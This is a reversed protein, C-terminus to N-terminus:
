FNKGYIIILFTVCWLFLTIQLFRDKWLVNIPSGSNKDIVTIQIYRMIGLFVFFSTIYLKDSGIREIVESSISYLIYSILTISFSISKAIDLFQISYGNKVLTEDSGSQAFDHRRKSFAISITLLFVIIIMWHSVFVEAIFGGALVRLVFGLSICSVDVISIKKLFLSYCINLCFYILVFFFSKGILFYSVFFLVSLIVFLTWAFKLSFYGKALPRLQNEQHKKDTELDFIDNVVYIASAALSFSLFLFILNLDFDSYIKGAFFLPLFVFGNKIWHKIRIFHLLNGLFEGM